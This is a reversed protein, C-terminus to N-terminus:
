GEEGREKPGATAVTSVWVAVPAPDAGSEALQASMPSPPPTPTPLSPQRVSPHIEEPPSHTLPSPTQPLPTGCGDRHQGPGAAADTAAGVATAAAVSTISRRGATSSPAAAAPYPGWTALAGSAATSSGTDLATPLGQPKEVGHQHHSSIGRWGCAPYRM